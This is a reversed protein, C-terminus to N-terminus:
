DLVFFLEEKKEVGYIALYEKEGDALRTWASRQEHGNMAFALDSQTGGRRQCYQGHEDRPSQPSVPRVPPGAGTGLGRLPGM